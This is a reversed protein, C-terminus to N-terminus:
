EDWPNIKMGKPRGLVENIIVMNKSSPLNKLIKSVRSPPQQEKNLDYASAENKLFKSSVMGEHYSDSMSSKQFRKENTSEGYHDNFSTKLQFKDLSQRTTERAPIKYIPAKPPSYRRIEEEAEEEEFDEEELNRQSSGKDSGELSKMFDSLLREKKRQNEAYKEPNRRRQSEEWFRKAVLFIMAALSIIFGLFEIFTM